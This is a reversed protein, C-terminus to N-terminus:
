YSSALKSLFDQPLRRPRLTKADVAVNVTEATAILLPTAAFHPTTPTSQSQSHSQDHPTSHNKPALSQAHTTSHKKPAPSQFQRQLPKQSKKLFATEDSTEAPLRYLKYQYHLRLGKIVVLWTRLNLLDDYYASHHYTVSFHVVPLLLEYSTQIVKPSIQRNRLLETRGQEFFGGYNAYYVVGGADTDKYYVRIPMEHEISLQTLNNKVLKQSNAQNPSNAQNQSAAQNKQSFHASNM